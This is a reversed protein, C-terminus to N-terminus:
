IVAKGTKSRTLGKRKQPSINANDEEKKQSLDGINKLPSTVPSGTSLGALSAFLSPQYFCFTEWYVTEKSFKKNLLRKM